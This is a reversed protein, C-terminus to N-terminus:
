TWWGCKAGIAYLISTIATILTAGFTLQRKKSPHELSYLRRGHDVIKINTEYVQMATFTALKRAPMKEISERYNLENVMDNGNAM